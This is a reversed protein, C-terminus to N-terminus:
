KRAGNRTPVKVQRQVLDYGLANAGGHLEARMQEFINPGRGQVNGYMCLNGIKRITDQIEDAHRRMADRSSAEIAKIAEAITEGVREEVAVEAAQTIADVVARGDREAARLAKITSHAESTVARCEAIAEELRAITAELDAIGTM